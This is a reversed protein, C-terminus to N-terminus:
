LYAATTLQTETNLHALNTFTMETTKSLSTMLMQKEFM